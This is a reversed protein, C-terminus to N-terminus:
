QSPEDEGPDLLMYGFGRASVLYQGDKVQLGMKRRIQRIHVKLLERAEQDDGEYGWIRKLLEQYGIVEDAREALCNLLRFQIPTLPLRKGRYIARKKPIDIVLEGLRIVLAEESVAAQVRRLVREIRNLGPPESQLAREPSEASTLFLVPLDGHQQLTRLLVLGENVLIERDVILFDPRNEKLWVLASDVDTAVSTGYGERELRSRIRDAFAPDPNIVLTNM